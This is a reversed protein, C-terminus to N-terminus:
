LEPNQQALRRRHAILWATEIRVKEQLDLWALYHPDIYKRNEPLMAWRSYDKLDPDTYLRGKWKGQRIFGSPADKRNHAHYTCYHASHSVCLYPCCSVACLGVSDANIHLACCNGIFFRMETLVNKIWVLEKINLKGCPCVQPDDARERQQIRWEKLMLDANEKERSYGFLVPYIPPTPM